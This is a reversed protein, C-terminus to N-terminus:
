NPGNEDQEPVLIKQTLKQIKEAKTEGYLKEKLVGISNFIFLSPKVVPGFESEFCNKNIIGFQVNPAQQLQPWKNQYGSRFYDDKDTLMFFRTNNLRNINTNITKLQSECRKCDPDFWIIVTASQMNYDIREKGM